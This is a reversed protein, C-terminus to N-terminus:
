RICCHITTTNPQDHLVTLPRTHSEIDDTQKVICSTANSELVTVCANGKCLWSAAGCSSSWGLCRTYCCFMECTSCGASDNAVALSLADFREEFELDLRSRSQLVALMCLTVHLCHSHSVGWSACRPRHSSCLQEHHSLWQGTRQCHRRHHRGSWSGQSRCGIMCSVNTQHHARSMWTIVQYHSVNYTLSGYGAMSAMEPKIIHREKHINKIINTVDGLLWSHVAAMFTALTVAQYHSVAYTFSAQRMKEPVAWQWSTLPWSLMLKSHVSRLLCQRMTRLRCIISRSVASQFTVLQDYLTCCM